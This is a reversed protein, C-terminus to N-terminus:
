YPGGDDGDGIVEGNTTVVPQHPQAPQAPGFLLQSGLGFRQAVIQAFLPKLTPDETHGTFLLKAVAFPKADLEARSYSHRLGCAKRIAANMAKSLTSRQIFERAQALQKAPDRDNKRAKDIITLAQAGGDSLDVEVDGPYDRFSGDLDQVRAWTRYGVKYPNRGDDTRVTSDRLWTIGAAGAIRQLLPGGLGITDTPSPKKRDGTIQYCDQSRTDARVMSIAVEVGEPLRECAMTPAVLIAKDALQGLTAMLNGGSAISAGVTIAERQPPRQQRAAGPRQQAPQQQDALKAAQQQDGQPKQAPAAAQGADAIGRRELIESAADIWREAWQPYKASGDDIEDQLKAAISQLEEDTGDEIPAGKNAGWPITLPKAM